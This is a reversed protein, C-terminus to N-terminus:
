VGLIKLKDRRSLIEKLSDSSPHKLVCPLGEITIGYKATHCKLMLSTSMCVYVCVVCVCVYMFPQWTVFGIMGTFIYWSSNYIM